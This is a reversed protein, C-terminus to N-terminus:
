EVYLLNVFKPTNLHFVVTCDMHTLLQRFREM